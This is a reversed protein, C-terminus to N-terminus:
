QHPWEGGADKDAPSHLNNGSIPATNPVKKREREHGKKTTNGDRASAMYRSSDATEYLESQCLQKPLAEGLKEKENSFALELARLAIDGMRLRNKVNANNKKRERNGKEPYNVTQLIV